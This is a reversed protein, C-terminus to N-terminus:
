GHSRTPFDSGRDDNRGAARECTAGLRRLGTSVAAIRDTEKLRLEAADRITSTGRARTALLALLPLEDILLPIDRGALAYSRTITGSVSIDAVPEGMEEHEGSIEVRAGMSELVGLLTARTPNIGCRQVTVQGGTLLAAAFLFAASSIDGPVTIQFPHLRAGGAVTVSGNHQAIDAGLARSCASPTIGLRNPSSWRTEGEAFLGALLIASKVQASAM